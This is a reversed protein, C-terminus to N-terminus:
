VVRASLVGQIARIKDLTAQPVETNLDVLTYAYDGRSKNLLDVINLNAEALLGSIQGVMNPVNANAVALRVGETRPMVVEPFNVSHRINGNELFDKVQDVVMLACNEEAEATSAGLHPLALIGPHGLIARSPFDCVYTRLRKDNLAHLIATEDVVGARSFNLLVAGKRMSDLRSENILKRTHDNLPVHLTIYDSRSVLDDISAAKAVSSSLQWASDVTLMPDFGVVNMGLSIATNAVKVGIAGLGLVGLTKGALESGAFQKKSKEVHHHLAEDDGELNRAFDWANCINRSALLMGAIVLEKVANSNAGPANFVPIGRASYDAVPINNVGAGARGVAKVTEPIPTGHLDQSRLLIADPHQIDSAIEYSERPMRELGKISINNYTLIKYM